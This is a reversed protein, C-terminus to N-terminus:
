TRSGQNEDKSNKLIMYSIEKYCGAGVSYSPLYVNYNGM